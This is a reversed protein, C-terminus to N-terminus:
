LDKYMLRWSNVCIHSILTLVYILATALIASGAIDISSQLPEFTLIAQYCIDALYGIFRAGVALYALLIAASVWFFIRRAFIGSWFVYGKYSKPHVYQGATIDNLLNIAINKIFWILLYVACGVFIWFIVQLIISQSLSNLVKHVGPASQAIISDLGGDPKLVTDNLYTWMNKLNLILLVLFSILFYLVLQYITPWLYNSNDSLSSSSSKINKEM